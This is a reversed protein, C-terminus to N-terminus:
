SMCKMYIEDDNVSLNETLFATKLTAGIKSCIAYSIEWRVMLVRTWYWACPVWNLLPKPLTTNRGVCITPCIPLGENHIFATNKSFNNAM